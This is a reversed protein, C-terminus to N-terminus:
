YKEFKTTLENLIDSSFNAYTSCFVKRANQVKDSYWWKDIDNWIENIKNAAEIPNFYIIGADFLLKYYPLADETLNDFGDNWFAITPINKSLCELIGTSDYSHVVLRSNNILKNIKLKGYEINLKEDFENWRLIEESFSNKCSSHLRLLLNSYIDYNLTKLFACQNNFFQEYQFSTDWTYEWHHYNDQIFLLSGIKNYNKISKATNKTIYFPTHQTLKTKWGFTFFVDSTLEEVTNQTYLNTGYNNGHQGVLYPINNETKQATWFKFLEDNDFNNCTYIFKPDKPWNLKSSFQIFNSFNEIFITPISYKLLKIFIQQDEKLNNKLLNSIIEERKNICIKKDIKIEPTRYILPFQFLKLHLKIEDIKSLYTGIIVASNKRQFLLAFNNFLTLFSSLLNKKQLKKTSIVKQNTSVNSIQINYGKLNIIDLYLQSNWEANNFYVLAENTDYPIIESLELKNIKFKNPSNKQILDDLTSIRNITVRLYRRIWHGLVINWFRESYKKNHFKNLEKVLLPLITNLLTNFLILNQDKVKKEVGYPQALIYNYKKYLDKHSYKICNNGILVNLSDEDWTEKDWNTVLNLNMMNGLLEEGM